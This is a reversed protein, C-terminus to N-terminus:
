LAEDFGEWLDWWYALYMWEGWDAYLARAQADSVTEGNFYKKGVFARCVTDVALEDYRGLLMLMTAAAYHGIGKIALLRKKIEATPADDAALAEIDLAGAAVSEALQHVYPARYGMRVTAAFKERPLAAIAEPTPFARQGDPAPEGLARVLGSLMKKTGGWQINTTCIVKVVDEFVSPSRLLRGMGNTVKRWPGGRKRCLRYFVSLDEDLRFMRTVVGAIRRRDPASLRAASTVVVVIEPQRLTGEGRISLTVVKGSPLRETRHLAKAGADWSNPALVVWGHSYASREFDFPAPAPLRLEKSFRSQSIDLDDTVQTKRREITAPMRRPPESVM